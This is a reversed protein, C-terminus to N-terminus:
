GDDQEKRKGYSCYDLPSMRLLSNGWCNCLTYFEDGNMMNEGHKCEFCRVVEVVDEPETHEIDYMMQDYVFSATKSKRIVDTDLLRETALLKDSNIYDAM